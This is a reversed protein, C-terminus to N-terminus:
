RNEERSGFVWLKRQDSPMNTNLIDIIQAATTDYGNHMTFHIKKQENEIVLVQYVGSMIHINTNYMESDPLFAILANISDISSKRVTGECLLETPKDYTGSFSSNQKLTYTFENGRLVFTPMLSGMNSGLGATTYSLKFYSEGETVFSIDGPNDVTNCESLEDGSNCSGFSVMLFITLILVHNLM